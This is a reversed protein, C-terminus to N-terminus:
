RMSLMSIYRQTRREDINARGGYKIYAIPSKNPPYKLANTEFGNQRCLAIIEDIGPLGPVSRSIYEISISVLQRTILKIPLPIITYISAITSPNYHHKYLTYQTCIIINLLTCVGYIYLIV